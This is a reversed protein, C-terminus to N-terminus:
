FVSKALIYTAAVVLSWAFAKKLTDAHLRRALRAGIFSSLV